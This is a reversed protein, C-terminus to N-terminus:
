WVDGKKAYFEKKEATLLVAGIFCAALCLHLGSNCMVTDSVGFFCVLLIGATKNQIIWVFSVAASMMSLSILFTMALLKVAEWGIGAGQWAYIEGACFSICVFFVSFLLAEKLCEWLLRLYIQKRNKQRIIFQEGFYYRIHFLVLICLPPLLIIRILGLNRYLVEEVFESFGQLGNGAISQSNQGIYFCVALIMYILYILGYKRDGWCRM